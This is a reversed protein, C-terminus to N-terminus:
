GAARRRRRRLGAGLLPALLAASGGGCGCRRAPAAEGPSGSDESGGTDEGFDPLPPPDQRWREGGDLTFAGSLVELTVAHRGDALDWGLLTGPEAGDPWAVVGRDEGDVTVRLRTGTEAAGVVRVQVGSVTLTARAGAEGVRVKGTMGWDSEVEEFGETWWQQLREDVRDWACALGWSAGGDASWWTGTRTALAIGRGDPTVALQEVVDGVPYGLMTAKSGAAVGDVVAVGEGAVSVWPRGAADPDVALIDHGELAVLRFSGDAFDADAPWAALGGDAALVVADGVVNMDHVERGLEGVQTWSAGDDDSAYLWGPPGCVAWIRPGDFALAAPKSTCSGPLLAKTWSAGGDTSVAVAAANDEMRGGVAIRPDEPYDEAVAVMDGCEPIPVPDTPWTEGGDRTHYVANGSIALMEEGDGVALVQRPYPWHVPGGVEHWDTEGPTGRYVGGGYPATVLEGSPLWNVTRTRPIIDLDGQVWRDGDPDRRYIGEFSALTWAGDGAEYRFYHIGDHPGGNGTALEDLGTADHEWTWGGDWSWWGAETASAALVAGDAVALVRVDTPAEGDVETWTAGGDASVAVPGDAQGAVLTGDDLAALALLGSGGLGDDGLASWAAGDWRWGRGEDDVVLVDGGDFALRAGTWEQEGGQAEWSAGEDDSRWLGGTGALFLAGALPGDAPADDCDEVHAPGGEGAEWSLGADETRWAGRSSGGVVWRAEDLAIACVAQGDLWYRYLFSAGGDTSLALIDSDNTLLAGDPAYDLTSAVDHPSHARAAAALLLLAPM